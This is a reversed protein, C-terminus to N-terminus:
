ARFWKKMSLFRVEFLHYSAVAILVSLTAGVLAQLLVAATYSGVYPVWLNATTHRWCGYSIIVHFVYLGYSYKGLFRLPSFRMCAKLLPPGDRWAVAFIVSSALVALVTQKIPLSIAHPVVSRPLAMLLALLAGSGGLWRRLNRSIAQEGEPGRIALAFWAGICLSDLRCPTFLQAWMDNDTTAGLVLRSGLALASLAVAVRMANVRNTLRIVLPWFLYFHEEVALTWFHSVYPIAFSGERACFVNALYTWLWVQHTRIELAEPVHPELWSRPILVILLFLVGYYLPFIRLTRRMYFARFYRPSERTEYLIGTILYGSLAFFLDVGWMGYGTIKTSIREVLNHPQQFMNAVFHVLIVGAIAVGRIGDLEHVHPKAAATATATAATSSGEPPM